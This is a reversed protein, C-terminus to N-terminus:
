KVTYGKGELCAGFAKNYNARHEALQKQAQDAEAQAQKHERRNKRRDHGAKLVGATAGIAAGKGADGAVAGIVAGAAAGGVVKRAGGGEAPLPVAPAAVQSTGVPDFGTQTKAWAFCAAEDGQQQSTTQGKAPFVYVGLSSSLASAETPPTDAHVQTLAFLAPLVCLLRVYRRYDSMMAEGSETSHDNNKRDVEVTAVPM